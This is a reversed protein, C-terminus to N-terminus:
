RTSGTRQDGAGPGGGNGPEVLSAGPFAAHWAFWYGGVWPVEAAGRRFTWVGDPAEVRLTLGPEGPVGHEGAPLLGIARERIGVMGGVGRVGVLKERPPYVPSTRSVPIEPAEGDREVGFGEGGGTAVRFFRGRRADAVLVVTTAHRRRWAGWSLVLGPIAELRQGRQSGRVAEGRFQYWLSGTERDYLVLNSEILAGENGFTLRRGGVRARYAVATASLPCYTIVVPEGGFRDNVVERGALVWLPYARAEGALTLGFVLDDDALAASPPPEAAFVPADVPAVWDRTRGPHLVLGDAMEGDGAGPKVGVWVAVAVGIAITILMGVALGM